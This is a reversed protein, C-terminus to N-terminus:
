NVPTSPAPLATLVLGGREGTGGTGQLCLCRQLAGLWVRPVASVAGWGECSRSAKGPGPESGSSIDMGRDLETRCLGLAPAGCGVPM